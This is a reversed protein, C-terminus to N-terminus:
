PPSRASWGLRPAVGPERELVSYYCDQPALQKLPRRGHLSIGRILEGHGSQLMEDAYVGLHARVFAGFGIHAIRPAATRDYGPPMAARARPLTAASLRARTATVITM